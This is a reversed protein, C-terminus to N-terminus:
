FGGGPKVTMLYILALVMVGLVPGIREIKAMASRDGGALQREAPFMAGHLVGNLAIWVLISLWVWTDGWEILGDSMSVLGFGIVGAVVVAIAYIQASAAIRQSLAVLDGDDRRKELEFLIPHVVAPAMAVLVAVIHLFLVLNYGTDRYAAILM